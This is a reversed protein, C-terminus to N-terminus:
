INPESSVNGLKQVFENLFKPDESFEALHHNVFALIPRTSGTLCNLMWIVSRYHLKHKRQDGNNDKRFVSKIFPTQDMNM